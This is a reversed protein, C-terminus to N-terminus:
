LIPLPRLEASSIFDTNGLGKTKAHAGHASVSVEQLQEARWVSDTRETVQGYAGTTTLLTIQCLTLYSYYTIM